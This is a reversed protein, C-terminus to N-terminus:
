ESWKIIAAAYKPFLAVANKLALYFLKSDLDDYEHVLINRTGVAPALDFALKEPLIKLTGLMLFSKRYDGPPEADQSRILFLNIDIARNISRELLREAIVSTM